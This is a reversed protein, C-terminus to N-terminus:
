NSKRFIVIAEKDTGKSEWSKLFIDKNIRLYDMAEAMGPNHFYVNKNDYGVITLFHGTFGPQGSIIFWNVLVIAISDKSVYKLLENLSIDKEEIEVGMRKIERQIERLIIKGKNNSYRDYYDIDNDNPNFNNNSIIKTRFGMRKSARAIGAAWVLGTETQKEEKAIEQFPHKEGLYELAMKLALPGCDTDKKSKYYPVPLKM